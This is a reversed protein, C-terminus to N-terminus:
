SCLCTMFLHHAPAHILHHMRWWHMVAQLCSHLSFASVLKMLQQLHPRLCRQMNQASALAAGRRKRAAEEQVLAEALSAQAAAVQGKAEETELLTLQQQRSCTVLHCEALMFAEQEVEDQWSLVCPTVVPLSSMHM